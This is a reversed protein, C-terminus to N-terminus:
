SSARKPEVDTQSLAGGVLHVKLSWARGARRLATAVKKTKHGDPVMRKKLKVSM